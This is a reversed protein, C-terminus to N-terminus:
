LLRTLVTAIKDTEGKSNVIELQVTEGEQNLLKRYIALDGSANNNISILQDGQRVGKQYAPSTKEITKIIVQNNDKKLKIGSLPFEFSQGYNKNPKLYLTHASYDLIVDFRSIIEAGLIGLYGEYSSVGGKDHAISVVMEKFNYGGIEMSQIAIDESISKSHLNESSSILNKGAKESVQHTENYPSNILLTLGAGSDFLVRDTFSEGNNLTITIDFQPIPIGNGFDFPITTYGTTSVQEIKNFLIIKQNEYDIKTIYNKLLSYGIIGEFDREMAEKLNTLDALVLNTNEIKIDNPLTLNQNLIIDYSQTGGAGDINHKYDPKLGLKTAATSDLLDATAGTDFVFTSPEEKDNIGVKVLVFDEKLEFPIEAVQANLKLVSLIAITLTSLISKMNRLKM